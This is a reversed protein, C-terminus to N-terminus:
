NTITRQYTHTEVGDHDVTVSINATEDQMPTLAGTLKPVLHDQVARLAISEAGPVDTDITIRIVTM